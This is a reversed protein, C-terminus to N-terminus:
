APSQDAASIAIGSIRKSEFGTTPLSKKGPVISSDSRRGCWKSSASSAAATFPM